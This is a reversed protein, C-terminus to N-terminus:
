SLRAISKQGCNKFRAAGFNGAMERVEAVSKGVVESLAEWVPIRARELAARTGGIRGQVRL